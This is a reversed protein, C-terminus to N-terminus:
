ISYHKGQANLARVRALLDAMNQKPKVVNDIKVNGDSYYICFKLENKVLDGEDDLNITNKLVKNMVDWDMKGVSENEEVAKKTM